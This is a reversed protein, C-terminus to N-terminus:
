KVMIAARECMFDGFRRLTFVDVGKGRKWSMKAMIRSMKARSAELVSNDVGGAIQTRVLEAGFRSIEDGDDSMAIICAPRAAKLGAISIAESIQPTLALRLLLETELKNAIMVNRNDAEIAIACIGAVHPVGFVYDADVAQITARTTGRLRDVLEGPSADVPISHVGSISVHYQAIM